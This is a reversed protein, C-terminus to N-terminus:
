VDLAACAAIPCAKLVALAIILGGRAMLKGPGSLGRTAFLGFALLSFLATDVNGPEVGFMIAPSLLAVIVIFSGTWPRLASLSCWPQRSSGLWSSASCTQQKLRQVSGGHNSGSLLIISSASGSRGVSVCEAAHTVSITDTFPRYPPLM